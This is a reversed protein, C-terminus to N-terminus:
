SDKSLRPVAMVVCPGIKSSWCGLSVGVSFSGSLSLPNIRSEDSSSVEGDSILFSVAIDDEGLINGDKIHCSSLVGGGLVSGFSFSWSERVGVVLLLCFLAARLSDM